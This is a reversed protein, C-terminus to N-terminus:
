LPSLGHRTGLQEEAKEKAELAEQPSVVGRVVVCGRQRIREAVASPFHGRLETFDVEPIAKSGLERLAHVEQELAAELRQM